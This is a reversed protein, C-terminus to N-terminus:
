VRHRYNCSICTLRSGNSVLGDAASYVYNQLALHRLALHGSTVARGLVARGLAHLLHWAGIVLRHHAGATRGMLRHASSM